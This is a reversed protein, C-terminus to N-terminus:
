AGEQKACWRVADGVSTFNHERRGTRRNIAYANASWGSGQGFIDWDGVKRDPEFEYPQFYLEGTSM